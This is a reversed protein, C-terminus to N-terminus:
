SHRRGALWVEASLSVAHLALEHGFSTTPITDTLVAIRAMQHGPESHTTMYRMGKPL